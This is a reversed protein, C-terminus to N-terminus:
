GRGANARDQPIAENSTPHTMSAQEEMETLGTLGRLANNPYQGDHSLQKSIETYRKAADADHRYLAVYQLIYVCTADKEHRKLSIVDSEVTTFIGKQESESAANFATNYKSVVADGCVVVTKGGSSNFSLIGRWLLVAITAVFAVFIGGFILSTSMRKSMRGDRDVM